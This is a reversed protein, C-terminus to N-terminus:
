VLKIPPTLREFIISSVGTILSPSMEDLISYTAVTTVSNLEMEIAMTHRVGFLTVEISLLDIGNVYITTPLPEAEEVYPLVLSSRVEIKPVEYMSRLETIVTMLTKESIILPAPSLGSKM